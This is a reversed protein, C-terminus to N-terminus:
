PGPLPLIQRGGLPRAGCTADPLDRARPHRAGCLALALGDATGLPPPAEAEIPERMYLMYVVKLYYGISMLSNLSASSRSPMYGTRARGQLRLVERHIRGDGPDRSRSSCLALVGRRVPARTGRRRPARRPAAQDRGPSPRYPPSPAPTRSSTPSSIRHDRGRPSRPRLGGARDHRLGDARDRLLGAAAQHGAARARRRQRADDLPDRARGGRDPVPGSARGSCRRSVRYLVLVSAGKPAVSLYLVAPTPMGQYVDPAWAHFPAVSMKFGFGVLLFLLGLIVLPDARTGVQSLAAAPRQREERLALRRRVAHVRVRVSGDPLIEPGGRVFGRDGRFFAPSCTSPSRCLELGIFVILLDLGRTLLSVGVHGWLLLAYFEGREEGTRGLYPKAVLIALAM